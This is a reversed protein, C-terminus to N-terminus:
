FYTNLKVQSYCIYYNFIFYFGAYNACLRSSYVHRLLFTGVKALLLKSLCLCIKVIKPMAGDPCKWFHHAYEVERM